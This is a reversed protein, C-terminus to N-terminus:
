KLAEILRIVEARQPADAPLRRLLTTAERAAEDRRGLRAFAIALYFRAQDFTSDLTVARQM